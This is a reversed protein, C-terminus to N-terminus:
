AQVVLDFRFLVMLDISGDDESEEEVLEADM